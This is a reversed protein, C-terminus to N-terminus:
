QMLIKEYVKVTDEANKRWTFGRAYAMADDRRKSDYGSEKMQLILQAAHAEDEAEFCYRKVEKPIVADRYVIVPVGRAQAELIELEFGTYLVPHVLVDFSDYIDVIRDEPAFGMFSIRSDGEALRALNEYELAKKGWIELRVEKDPIQKVANILFRVNKRTNMAGLYGVKFTENKPKNLPQEIFREDVGINVVFVRDADFGFRVVEDKVSTSITTLYDSQMMARRVRSRIMRDFATERKETTSNAMAIAYPSDKGVLALEPVTTVLKARGRHPNQMILSPTHLIDYGGFGHFMTALTFSIRRATYGKGFGLEVKDFTSGSGRLVDGINRQMEFMMRQVGQGMGKDFNGKLSFMCVKM